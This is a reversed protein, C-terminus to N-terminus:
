SNDSNNFEKNSIMKTIEDIPNGVWDVYNNCKEIDDKSRVLLMGSMGIENFSFEYIHVMMMFETNELDNGIDNHQLNAYFKCVTLLYFM